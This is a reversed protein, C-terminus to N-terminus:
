SGPFLRAEKNITDVGTERGRQFIERLDTKSVRSEEGSIEDADM